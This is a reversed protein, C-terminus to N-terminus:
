RPNPIFRGDVDMAESASEYAQYEATKPDCPNGTLLDHARVIHAGGAVLFGSLAFKTRKNTLPSEDWLYLAWGLAIIVAAGSELIESSYGIRSFRNVTHPFMAEVEKELRYLKDCEQPLTRLQALGCPIRAENYIEFVWRPPVKM